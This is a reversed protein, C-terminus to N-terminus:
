MRRSPMTTHVHFLIGTNSPGGCFGCTIRPMELEPKPQRVGPQARVWPPQNDYEDKLVLYQQWHLVHAGVHAHMKGVQVLMSMMM